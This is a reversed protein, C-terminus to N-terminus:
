FRNAQMWLRRIKNGKKINVDMIMESGSSGGDKKRSRKM